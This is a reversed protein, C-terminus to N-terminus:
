IPTPAWYEAADEGELVHCAGFVFDEYEGLSMGADQAHANTPIQTGVWKADGADIREWFRNSVRRRAGLLTAHRASDLRTFSRTNERGWITVSADILEVERWAIDSIFELQRGRGDALMIEDLGELQMSTYPLLERDIAARYLALVLPTGAESAELRLVSAPELELSYDLLLAALREVRPDIV